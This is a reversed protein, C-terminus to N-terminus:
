SIEMYLLQCMCYCLCYFSLNQVLIFKNVILMTIKNIYIIETKINISQNSFDYLANISNFHFHTDTESPLSAALKAVLAPMYKEQM